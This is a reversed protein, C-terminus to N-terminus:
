AALSGDAALRIQGRPQVVRYTWSLSVATGQALLFVHRAAQESRLRNRFTMGVLHGVLDAVDDQIGHDLVIRAAAHRHFGQDRGPLDM